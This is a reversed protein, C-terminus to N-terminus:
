TKLSQVKSKLNKGVIETMADIATDLGIKKAASIPIITENKFDNGAIGEKLNHIIETVFDNDIEDTKSLLIIRPKQLLAKNYEELEHQLIKYEAQIDIAQIDILFVLCKVREIHKLFSLGLGLGQSAGAIIGPIDAISFSNFDDKKVVGINPRLTTFPYGAIKPHSSTINSLLTSKGANPLGVLGVDAILKLQLLLKREEGAMGPQAYEPAQNSSTAFHQNGLGGMGGSLFLIETDEYASFDYLKEKTDADLIVTGPPLLISLSEGAPGSKNRKKGPIGNEAAYAKHSYLHSLSRVRGSIKLLIAGGKGGDGGDPGGNQVFKERHFHVM